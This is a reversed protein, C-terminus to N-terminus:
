SVFYERMPICDVQEFFQPPIALYVLRGDVIDILHRAYEEYAQEGKL